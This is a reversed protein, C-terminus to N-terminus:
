SSPFARWRGALCTTLDNEKQGLLDFVTEVPKDLLTLIAV